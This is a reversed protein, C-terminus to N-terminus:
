FVSYAGQYDGLCKQHGVENHYHPNEPSLMIAQDLIQLTKNLMMQNRGCYRSFLRSINYYLDANKSESARMSNLLDNMKEEVLEWDGERAMLYFVYIRLAEINNRDSIMVQQIADSAQDWENNAIHIKAKEIVAPKFNPFCVCAESLIQIAADYKKVKEFVKVKGLMAELSKKGNEESADICFDFFQMSKM